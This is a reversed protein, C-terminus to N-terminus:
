DVCGHCVRVEEVVSEAAASDFVDWEYVRCSGDGEESAGAGCSGDMRAVMLSEDGPIEISVFCGLLM